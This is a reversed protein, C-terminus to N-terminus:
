DHNAGEVVFLGFPIIIVGLVWFLITRPLGFSRNYMDPITGDPTDSPYGREWLVVQHNNGIAGVMDSGASTLNFNVTLELFVSTLTWAVVWVLYTRIM